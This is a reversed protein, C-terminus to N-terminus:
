CVKAPDKSDEQLSSKLIRLSRVWMWLVAIFIVFLVPAIQQLSLQPFLTQLAFFTLSGGTKGFRAGVVDVAAKGKIKVEEDLPIYAMEKTPDFLSYKSAKSLANQWYGFYVALALPTLSISGVQILVSQPHQWLGWIISIFFGSGAVLMILPPLIAASFWSIRRLLHSTILMLPISLLGITMSFGGMFHSYGLPNGQFYAKIESKWLVDCYNITLGYAFVLMAICALHKSSLVHRLSQKLSARPHRPMGSSEALRPGITADKELRRNLWYYIIQVLALSTCVLGLMIQLTSQWSNGAQPLVSSSPSSLRRTIYGALILGLNGLVGFLPYFRKAEQKNCIANAFQWFFLSLSITGCLESAIFFCAYSWNGWIAIWWKFHPWQNQLHVIRESSLHFLHQYPFIIYAFLAFFALLPALSYYVMKERGVREVWKAYLLMFTVAVPTTGWMKLFSIVTADSGAANVILADKFNRLITYNFVVCFMMLAMPLFLPMETRHIPFIVFFWRRLRGYSTKCISTEKMGDFKNM